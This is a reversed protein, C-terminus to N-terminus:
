VKGGRREAAAEDLIRHCDARLEANTPERGLKRALKTAITEKGTLSEVHFNIQIM